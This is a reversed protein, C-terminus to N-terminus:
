VSQGARRVAGGSCRVSQASVASCYALDEVCRSGAQRGAPAWCAGALSVARARGASDWVVVAQTGQAGVSSPRALGPFMWRSGPINGSLGSPPAMNGCPHIVLSGPVINSYSPSFLPLRRVVLRVIFSSPVSCSSLGCCFFAMMLVYSGYSLYSLYRRCTYLYMWGRGEDASTATANCYSSSFIGYGGWRCQGRRSEVLGVRGARWVLGGALGCVVSSLCVGEDAESGEVTLREILVVSGVRRSEREREREREREEDMAGWSM